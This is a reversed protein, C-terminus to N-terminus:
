ATVQLPLLQCAGTRRYVSRPMYPSYSVTCPTDHVLVLKQMVRPLTPDRTQSPELQLLRSPAVPPVSPFPTSLQEELRNQAFM